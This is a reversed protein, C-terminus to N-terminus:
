EPVLLRVSFFTENSGININSIKETNRIKSLTEEVSSDGTIINIIVDVQAEQKLPIDINLLFPLEISTDGRFKESSQSREILRGSMTKIFVGVFQGHDDADISIQFGCPKQGDVVYPRLEPMTNGFLLNACRKGAPPYKGLVTMNGHVFIDKSVAARTSASGSKPSAVVNPEKTVRSSNSFVEFLKDKSTWGFASIITIAVGFVLFIILRRSRNPTAFIRKDDKPLLKPKPSKIGVAELADSVTNCPYIQVNTSPLHRSAEAANAGAPLILCIGENTNEFLPIAALLKDTIHDISEVELDYNVKGSVLCTIHAQEGPEALHSGAFDTLAHALYFGLQWSLGTDIPEALDLRYSAGGFDRIIVGSGQRVFDDYDGSIPLVQSSRKLCVMSQPACEKTIRDIAVVGETTAILIRIAKM